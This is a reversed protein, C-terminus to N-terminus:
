IYDRRKISHFKLTADRLINKFIQAGVVIIICIEQCSITETLGLVDNETDRTEELGEKGPLLKM